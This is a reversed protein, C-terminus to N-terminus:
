EELEAPDPLDVITPTVGLAPLLKGLLDATSIKVVSTNVCPHCGIHDYKMLDRDAVLRVAHSRDNMLGLISVSGPFLDLYKEMAEPKAFSVRSIGLARSLLRTHFPKSGPMMLLYFQTEQRNCLFLNKCIVADLREDLVRCVEMNDAAPHDIRMYPIGAGDLFRYCRQEREARLAMDAPAGPLLETIIM